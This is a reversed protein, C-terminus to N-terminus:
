DECLSENNRVRWLKNFKKTLARDWHDTDSTEQWKKFAKRNSAQKAKGKLAM